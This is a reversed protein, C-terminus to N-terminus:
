IWEQNLANCHNNFQTIRQIYIREENPNSPEGFICGYRGHHWEEFANEFQKDEMENDLTENVRRELMLAMGYQLMLKLTIEKSTKCNNKQMWSIPNSSYSQYLDEATTM